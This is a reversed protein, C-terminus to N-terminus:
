VEDVSIYYSGYKKRTPTGVAKYASGRPWKARLAEVWDERIEISDESMNGAIGKAEEPVPWFQVFEHEANCKRFPLKREKLLPFCSECFVIGPCETCFHLEKHKRKYVNCRNDVNLCLGDCFVVSACSEVSEAHKSPFENNPLRSPQAFLVAAAASANKLDGACILCSLLEILAGIRSTPGGNTLIDLAQNIPGRFCNEWSFKAIQAHLHKRYYVGLCQSFRNLSYSQTDPNNFRSWNTPLLIWSSRFSRLHRERRERIQDTVACDLLKELWFDSRYGDKASEVAREYYISALYRSASKVVKYYWCDLEETVALSVELKVAKEFLDQDQAGHIDDYVQFHYIFRALTILAWPDRSFVGQTNYVQVAEYLLERILSIADQSQLACGVEFGVETLFTVLASPSQWQKFKALEDVMGVIAEFDRVAFLCRIFNYTIPMVPDVQDYDPGCVFLSDRHKAYPLRARELAQDFEEQSLLMDILENDIESRTLKDSDPLNQIADELVARALDHRGLQVLCNAKLQLIKWPKPELKLAEDFQIIALDTHNSMDLLWGYWAHWFSTRDVQNFNVIQELVKLDSSPSKELM